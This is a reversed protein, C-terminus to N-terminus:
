LRDQSAGLAQGSLGSLNGASWGFGEDCKEQNPLGALQLPAGPFRWSGVVWGWFSFRLSVTTLFVSCRGIRARNRSGPYPSGPLPGIPFTPFPSPLPLFVPAGVVPGGPCLSPCSTETRDWEERGWPSYDVLSRQGYSKGPLFVPTPQWKRRRPDERILSQVQTEQMASLHKVTQAVLSAWPM